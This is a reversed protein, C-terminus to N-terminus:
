HTRPVAPWLRYLMWYVVVGTVSVYGWLPLTVRAIRRHRDFQRRQARLVTVLVLPVIAVALVTHTVLVTFYVARVAGQGQFRVSGVQSHYFLYSALFLTSSALAAKMVRRHAVLRRRRVLLWGTLLLTASLANLAANVTPLDRVTL